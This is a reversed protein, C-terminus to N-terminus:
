LKLVDRHKLGTLAQEFLLAEMKELRDEKRYAKRFYLFTILFICAAIVGLIIVAVTLLVEM